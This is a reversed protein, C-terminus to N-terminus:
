IEGFEKGMKPPLTFDKIPIRDIARGAITKNNIKEPGCIRYM